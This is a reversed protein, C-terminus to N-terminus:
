GEATETVDALVEQFEPDGRFPDYITNVGLYLDVWSRDDVARRLWGLTQERAGLLAALSAATGASVRHTEVLSALGSPPPTPTGTTKFAIMAGAMESAMALPLGAIASWQTLAMHVSVHEERALAVLAKGFQAKAYGFDLRTARDFEEAAGDVDGSWLLLFGHDAAIPVSLPDLTSAMGADALAPQLQGLDALVNARWHYAPAYSSNRQIAMGFAELSGARDGRFARVLGLSAHPEALDANLGIAVRAYSEARALSEEVDTGLAVQPLLAYSDALGAFAEAYLSDLTVAQSFLTIAAPIGAAGRRGWEARGKWYADVAERPPEHRAAAQAPLDLRGLLEGVIAGAIEDQVVFLDDLARDFNASWLHFGTATDILQATVRVQRGERRVSGELLTSVGLEAGIDRVDMAGDRFAFSSTRAAVRLGEVGALINLIEEALGDGLYGQDGQVSMDAFPLVAISAQQVAPPTSPRVQLVAYMGAFGLAGALVLVAGVTGVSPAPSAPSAEETPLAHAPPTRHLAGQRVDFVWALAMIVPFAAIVVAVLARMAAENLGFAPFLIEGLQLLVFSAAAYAAATSLVRRRKLEQWLGHRQDAM